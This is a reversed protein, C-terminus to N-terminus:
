RVIFNDRRRSRGSLCGHLFLSATQRGDAADQALSSIGGFEYPLSVFLLVLGGKERHYPRNTSSFAVLCSAPVGIRNWRIPIRELTGVRVSPERDAGSADARFGLMRMTQTRSERDNSSRRGPILREIWFVLDHTIDDPPKSRAFLASLIM